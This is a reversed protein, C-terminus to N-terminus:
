STIHCWAITQVCHSQISTHVETNENDSKHISATEDPTNRGYYFWKKLVYKKSNHLMYKNIYVYSTICHLDTGSMRKWRENKTKKEEKRSLFCQICDACHNQKSVANDGRHCPSQSPSMAHTSVTCLIHTHTCPSQSPSLATISSVLLPTHFCAHRHVDSWSFETCCRGNRENM